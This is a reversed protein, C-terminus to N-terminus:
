RPHAPRARLRALLQGDQRGGSPPEPHAPSLRSRASVSEGERRKARLAAWWARSPGGSSDGGSTSSWAPPRGLSIRSPRPPSAGGGGGAADDDDDEQPPARSQLAASAPTAGREAGAQKLTRETARLPRAAGGGEVGVGGQSTPESAARGPCSGAASHPLGVSPPTRPGRLWESVQRRRGLAARRSAAWPLSNGLPPPSAPESPQAPARYVTPWNKARACM